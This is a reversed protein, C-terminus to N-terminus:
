KQKKSNPVYEGLYHVDVLEIFSCVLPYLHWMAHWFLFGYVDRESQCRQSQNFSYLAILFSLFYGLYTSVRMYPMIAFHRYLEFMVMILASLRDLVHVYNDHTLYVYDALFSLPGQFFLLYSAVSYHPYPLRGSDRPPLLLMVLGGWSFTWCLLGFWPHEVLTEEMEKHDHFSTTSKLMWSQACEWHPSDLSVLDHSKSQWVEKAIELCENLHM